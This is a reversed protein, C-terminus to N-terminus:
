FWWALGGIVGGALSGLPGAVSGGLAGLQAGGWAGAALGAVSPVVGMAAGRVLAGGTSSEVGLDGVKDPDLEAFPNAAGKAPAPAGGLDGVKDPDLDAFPNQSDLM